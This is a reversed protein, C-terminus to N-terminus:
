VVQGEVQQNKQLKNAFHARFSNQIKTAACDQEYRELSLKTMRLPWINDPNAEYGKEKALPNKKLFNESLFEIVSQTATLDPINDARKDYFSAVAISLPTYARYEINHNRKMYRQSIDAIDNELLWKAMDLDSNM